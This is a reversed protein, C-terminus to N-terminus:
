IGIVVLTKSVQASTLYVYGTYGTLNYYHWSMDTIPEILLPFGENPSLEEYYDFTSGYVELHLYSTKNGYVRIDKTGDNTVLVTCTYLGNSCDLYITDVEVGNLTVKFSEFIPRMQVDRRVNNGNEINIVYDDDLDVYGNKSLSLSYRGDTVDNFQFSGDSGTLTTEGRPNLRVNANNVPDGTAFDTVTGYISGQKTTPNEKGCGFLMCCLVLMAAVKLIQKKM